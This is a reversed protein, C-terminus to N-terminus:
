NTQHIQVSQLEWYVLGWHQGCYLLTGCKVMFLYIGDGGTEELVTHVSLYTCENTQGALLMYLLTIKLCNPFIKSFMFSCNWLGWICYTCWRALAQTDASCVLSQAANFQIIWSVKCVSVVKKKCYRSKIIRQYIYKCIWLRRVPILSWIGCSFKQKIDNLPLTDLCFNLHWHVAHNPFWVWLRSGSFLSTSSPSQFCLWLISLCFEWVPPNLLLTQYISVAPYMKIWVTVTEHNIILHLSRGHGYFTIEWWQRAGPFAKM